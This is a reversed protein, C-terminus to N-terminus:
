IRGDRVMQRIVAITGEVAVKATNWEGDRLSKLKDQDVGPHRWDFFYTMYLRGQDDESVINSALSGDQPRYFDVKVDEYATCIERVRKEPEGPMITLLIERVTVTNGADETTELVDTRRIPGQVFDEAAVVKRELGRWVQARTLVPHADAPNIPATYALHNAQPNPM